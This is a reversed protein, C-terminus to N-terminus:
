RYRALADALRCLEAPVMVVPKIAEELPVLGIRGRVLCALM